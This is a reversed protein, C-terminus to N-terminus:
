STSNFSINVYRLDRNDACSLAWSNTRFVEEEERQRRLTSLTHVQGLTAAMYTDARGNVNRSQARM